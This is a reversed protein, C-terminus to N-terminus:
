NKIMAIAYWNGCTPVFFFFLWKTGNIEVIEEGEHIGARDAPSGEICSLVV